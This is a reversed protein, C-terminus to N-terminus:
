SEGVPAGNTSALEEYCQIREHIQLFVDELEAINEALATSAKSFLGVGASLSDEFRTLSTGLNETTQHTYSKIGNDLTSLSDNVTERHREWMENMAESSELLNSSSEKFNASLETLRKLQATIESASESISSSVGRFEQTAVTMRAVYENSDTLVNEAGEILKTMSIQLQAQRESMSSLTSYSRELSEGFAQAKVVAVELKDALASFGSELSATMKELFETVMSDVAETQSRLTTEGLHALTENVGRLAPVLKKEFATNLSLAFDESLTSLTASQARAERLIEDQIEQSLQRQFKHDMASIFNEFDAQVLSVTKRYKANYIVGFFIGVVSTTFSTQMGGILHSISFKLNEADTMDFRYLGATLGLFTGLIGLTMLNSGISSLNQNNWDNNIKTLCFFASSQETNRVVPRGDLERFTLAEKFEHWALKLSKPVKEDRFLSSVKDLDDPTNVRDVNLKELTSTLSELPKALGENLTELNILGRVFWAVIVFVFLITFLLNITM